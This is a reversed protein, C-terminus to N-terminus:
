DEQAPTQGSDVPEAARYAQIFERATDLAANSHAWSTEPFAEALAELTEVAKELHDRAQDRDALARGYAAGVMLALREAENLGNLDEQSLAADVTVSVEILRQAAQVEPAPRPMDPIIEDGWTRRNGLCVPCTVKDWDASYVASALNPVAHPLADHILGHIVPPETM